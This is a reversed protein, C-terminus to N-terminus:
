ALRFVLFIGVRPCDPIPRQDDTSQNDAALSFALTNDLLAVFFNVSFAEWSM